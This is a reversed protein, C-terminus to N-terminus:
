HAAPELEVRGLIEDPFHEVVSLLSNPASQGLGCKSAQQMTEGLNCLERLYDMSCRGQQLLEVGELLRPIGERCPTCQGCSEELFFELFNQSVRLLDRQQGIVIVSGGTAKDENAITRDFRAAPVCRGAAGGIQVAKAKEGGVEKMLEAVTIGMPFEYVGPRACDGSVSFLKRGTSKATGVNRFWEAGKALVCTVWAFTEM